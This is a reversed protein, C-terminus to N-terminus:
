PGLTVNGDVAALFQILDWTVRFTGGPKQQFFVVFIWPKIMM